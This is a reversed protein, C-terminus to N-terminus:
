HLFLCFDLCPLLRRQKGIYGVSDWIIESLLLESVSFVFGFSAFVISIVKFDPSPFAYKDFMCIILVLVSVGLMAGSVVKDTATLALKRKVITM